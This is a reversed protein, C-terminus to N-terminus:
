DGKEIAKSLLLKYENLEKETAKLKERIHNNYKEANQYDIKLDRHESLLEDFEVKLKEYDSKFLDKEM